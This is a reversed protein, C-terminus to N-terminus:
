PRPFSRVVAGPVGAFVIPEDDAATMGLDAPSLVVDDCASRALHVVVVEAVHERVFTVSDASADLWRLSGHQLAVSHRRLEALERVRDVFPDGAIAHM